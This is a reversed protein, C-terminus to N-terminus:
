RGAEQVPEFKPLDSFTRGEGPVLLDFVVLLTRQFPNENNDSVMVYRREGIRALGEFNDVRWGQLSDMVAVDEVPLLGGSPVTSLPATIRLSTALRYLLVNFQRELVLVAGDDLLEMAVLASDAGRLPYRWDRGDFAALPVESRTAGALPTEPATLVLGDDDAAIAELARNASAFSGKPLAPPLGLDEVLTGDPRYVVVRAAREFSVLLRADGRQGNNGDLVVLGESDRANGRLPLGQEDLLPYAALLEIGAIREEQISLRLHFLNGHDSIAYLLDEDADHGLGSLEVLSLGDLTARPLEVSDLIRIGGHADGPNMGQALPYRTFDMALAPAAKLLVILWLGTFRRRTDTM